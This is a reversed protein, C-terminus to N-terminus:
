EAGNKHVTALTPLIAETPDCAREIKLQIATDTFRELIM